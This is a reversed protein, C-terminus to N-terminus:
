FPIDEPKLDNEPYDLPKDTLEDTETGTETEREKALLSQYETESLIVYGDYFKEGNRYIDSMQGSLYKGYQGDKTWLKAITIYKGDDGKATMKHTPKNGGGADTIKQITIYKITHM